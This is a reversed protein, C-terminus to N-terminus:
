GHEPIVSAYSFVTHTGFAMTALAEALGYLAPGCVAALLLCVVLDRPATRGAVAWRYGLAAGDPGGHRWAWHWAALPIVVWCLVEFGWYLWAEGAIHANIWGNVFFPVI